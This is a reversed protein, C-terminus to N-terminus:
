APTVKVIPSPVGPVMVGDRIVSVEYGGLSPEAVLLNASEGLGCVIGGMDIVYV